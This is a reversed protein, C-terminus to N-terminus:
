HTLTHHWVQAVVQMQNVIHSLLKMLEVHTPDIVLPVIPWPGLLVSPHGAVCGSIHVSGTWKKRRMSWLSHLTMTQDYIDLLAVVIQRM